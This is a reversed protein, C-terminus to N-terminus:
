LEDLDKMWFETEEDEDVIWGVDGSKDQPNVMNNMVYGSRWQTRPIEQLDIMNNMVSLM